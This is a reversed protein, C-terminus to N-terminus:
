KTVLKESEGITRLTIKNEPNGAALREAKRAAALQARAKTVIQKYQPPLSVEWMWMTKGDALKRKNTCKVLMPVQLQLTDLYFDFLDRYQVYNTITFSEGRKVQVSELPNGEEDKPGSGCTLADGLNTFQYRIFEPDREDRADLRAYFFEGKEPEWYPAFGVQEREFVSFDPNEADFGNEDVNATTKNESM